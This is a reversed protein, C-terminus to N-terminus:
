LMKNIRELVTNLIDKNMTTAANRLANYISILEDRPMIISGSRDRLANRAEEAAELAETVKAKNDRCVRTNDCNCTFDPTHEEGTISCKVASDSIAVKYNCESCKM